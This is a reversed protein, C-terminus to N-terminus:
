ENTDEEVKEGTNEGANNDIAEGGNNGPKDEDQKAIIAMNSIYEKLQRSTVTSVIQEDSNEFNANTPVPIIQIRSYTSNSASIAYTNIADINRLMLHQEEPLSFIVVTPVRLEESNEFVNKGDSTKVALVRVNRIIKGVLAKNNQETSIYIDIYNGPVISNTYSTLMNVTLYYLTENDPIDYLVADPLESKNDLAEIYFLSGKPVITNVKTYKGIVNEAKDYYSGTLAARPIEIKAVKETTIETRPQITTAAVPVWVPKTESNIRVNYGVIVIIVILIACIGTVVNKNKFFKKFKSANLNNDM